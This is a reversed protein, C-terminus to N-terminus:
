RICVLVFLVVLSNFTHHTPKVLWLRTWEISEHNWFQNTHLFPSWEEPITIDPSPLPVTVMTLLRTPYCTGDMRFLKCDTLGINLKCSWLMKAWLQINHEFFDASTNQDWIWPFSDMSQLGLSFDDSLNSKAGGSQNMFCRHSFALEINYQIYSHLAHPLLWM